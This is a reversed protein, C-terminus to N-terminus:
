TCCRCSTRGVGGVAPGPACEPRHLLAGAFPCPRPGWWSVSCWRWSIAARRSWGRRRGAEATDQAYPRAQLCAASRPPRPRRRSSSVRGCRAPPPRTARCARCCGAQAEAIDAPDGDYRRLAEIHREVQTRERELAAAPDRLARAACPGSPGLHGACPGRASERGPGARARDGEAAPHRLHAPARALWDAQRVALGGPHCLGSDLRHVPCGADVDCGADGGLFSCVLIGGSWPVGGSRLGTRDPALHDPGGWLDAGGCLHVLVVAACVGGLLRPVPGGYREALFDPITFQGFRRLYPALFLAVLVFGGTWGLLFALGGFGQMYLAHGGAGSVLGGVALGGGAGHRQLVGARAARGRLVRGPRHHPHPHDITAYVALTGLLFTLGIASKSWGLPELVELLLVFGIFGWTFRWYLRDLLPRLHSDPSAPMACLRCRSSAVCLRPPRQVQCRVAPTAHCRLPKQGRRPWGAM